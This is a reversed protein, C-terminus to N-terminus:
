GARGTAVAVGIGALILGLIGYLVRAGNRGFAWVFFRAKHHTMFWDWDKAAAVISFLGGGILFAVIFLDNNM